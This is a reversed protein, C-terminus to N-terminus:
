VKPVDNPTIKNIDVEMIYGTAGRITVFTRDANFGVIQVQSFCYKVTQGEKLSDNFQAREKRLRQAQQRVQTRAQHQQVQPRVVAKAKETQQQAM